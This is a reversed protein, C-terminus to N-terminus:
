ELTPLEQPANTKCEVQECAPVFVAQQEIVLRADRLKEPILIRGVHEGDLLEDKELDREWIATEDFRRFLELKAELRTNVSGTIM